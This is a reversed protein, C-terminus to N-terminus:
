LAGRIAQFGYDTAIADLYGRVTRLYDQPAQCSFRGWPQSGRVWHGLFADIFEIPCGRFVLESRLAHRNCNEPLKFWPIASRLSASIRADTHKLEAVGNETDRVLYFILKKPAEWRTRRRLPALLMPLRECHKRWHEIQRATVLALPVTRTSFGEPSDKDSLVVIKLDENVMSATPLKDVVARMGTTFRILTHVYSALANHLTILYHPDLAGGRAQRWAAALDHVLKTVTNRKPTIPSGVHSQQMATIPMPRRRDRNGELAIAQDISSRVTKYRQVLAPVSLCSYHLQTDALRHKRMCLLGATVTDASQAIIADYLVNCARALSLRPWRALVEAKWARELHALFDASLGFAHRMKVPAAHADHLLARAAPLRRLLMLEDRWLPLALWPETHHALSPDSGRYTPQGTPRIAPLVLVGENMAIAPKAPGSAPVSALDLYLGVETLAAPVLGLRPALRMAVALTFAEKAKDQGRRAHMQARFARLAEHAHRRLFGELQALEGPTVHGWTCPLLQVSRELQGQVRQRALVQAVLSPAPLETVVAREVEPLDPDPTLTDIQVYEAGSDGVAEHESLGSLMAEQEEAVSRLPEARVRLLFQETRELRAGPDIRDASKGSRAEQSIYRLLIELAQLHGDKTAGPASLANRLDQHYQAVDLYQTPLLRAAVPDGLSLRVGDCAAKVTARYRPEPRLMPLRRSAAWTLAVALSLNGPQVQVDSAYAHLLAHLPFEGITGRTSTASKLRATKVRALAANLNGVGRELQEVTGPSLGLRSDGQRALAYLQHLWTPVGLLTKALGMLNSPPDLAKLLTLADANGALEKIVEDRPSEGDRISDAQAVIM